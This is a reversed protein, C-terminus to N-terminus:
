RTADNETRAAPPPLGIARVVDKFRPEGRLPDFIPDVNLYILRDYREEVARELRQCAAPRDNLGTLVMAYCYDISYRADSLSQLHQLANVSDTRRGQLAFVYARAAVALTSPAGGSLDVAREVSALAADLSRKQAHALGLILHAVAFNSDLDITRILQEIAEDYSGRYYLGWGVDTNIILSLPDLEQALLIEATQEEFRGMATLFEHYWHHATAYNPNIALAQRFESEAAAWNWDFYLHAYALSTHAEALASDLELARGAAQKAQPMTGRPPLVSYLSLLNYCDALGSFALAYTPDREIATTFYAIGRTLGDRTRKNWHFRGKLYLRYAEPDTTYRKAILRREELTMRVKLTECIERSIEEQIALVDPQSSRYHEGWLRSNDATDVLEAAITPIGQVRSIRGTVVARVDLERGLAGPNRQGGRFGTVMSFALVRVNHLQSLNKILSEAIGTSLYELDADDTENDFPLVAIRDIAREAGRAQRHVPLAGM